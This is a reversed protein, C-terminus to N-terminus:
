EDDFSNSAGGWKRATGRNNSGRPGGSSNRGRGGNKSAGPASSTGNKRATKPPNFFDVIGVDMTDDDIMNGVAIIRCYQNFGAATMNRYANAKVNFNFFLDTRQNDIFSRAKVVIRASGDGNETIETPVGSVVILDPRQPDGIEWYGTYLSSWCQAQLITNGDRQTYETIDGIRFLAYSGIDFKMRRMYEIRKEWGLLDITIDDWQKSGDNRQARTKVTLRFPKKDGPEPVSVKEVLGSLFTTCHENNDQRTYLLKGM